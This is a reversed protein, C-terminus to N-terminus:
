RRLRRGHREINMVINMVIDAVDRGERNAATAFSDRGPLAASQTM